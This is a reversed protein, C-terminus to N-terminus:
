GKLHVDKIEHFGNMSPNIIYEEEVIDDEDTESDQESTETSYDNDEAKSKIEEICEEFLEPRGIKNMLQRVEEPNDYISLYELLGLSELLFLLEANKEM